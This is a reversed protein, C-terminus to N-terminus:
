MSLLNLKTLLGFSNKEIRLTAIIAWTYANAELQLM